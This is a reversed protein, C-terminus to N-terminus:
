YCCHGNDELVYYTGDSGRILDSGCIHIYIDKPVDVGRFEKRFHKANEIYHRPIVEDNLINQDHYVDTARWCGTRIRFGRRRRIRSNGWRFFRGGGAM